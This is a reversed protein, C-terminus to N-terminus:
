WESVDRTEDVGHGAGGLPEWRLRYEGIRRELRVSDSMVRASASVLRQNQRKIVLISISKKKKELLLRCVLNTLSQLESTHEESRAPQGSRRRRRWSM